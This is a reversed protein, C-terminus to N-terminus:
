LCFKQKLFVTFDKMESRYKVLNIQRQKLTLTEQFEAGASQLRGIGDGFFSITLRVGYEVQRNSYFEELYLWLKKSLMMNKAKLKVRLQHHRTWLKDTLVSAKGAKMALDAEEWSKKVEDELRHTNKAEMDVWPACVGWKLHGECSQRTNIGLVNLAVVTELIGPDMGKGLKDGTGTFKKLYRDWIQKQNVM